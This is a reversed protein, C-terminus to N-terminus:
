QKEYIGINNITRGSADKGRTTIAEMLSVSTENPSGGVDGTGAAGAGGTGDWGWPWDPPVGVYV